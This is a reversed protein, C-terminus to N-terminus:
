AYAGRVSLVVAASVVSVMGVSFVVALLLKLATACGDLFSALKKLGFLEAALSSLLCVLLWVAAKLCLPLFIALSALLGFAGVGSKVLSISSSIATFADSFAGGVIPIASSAIMKAVKGAAADSGASVLTQISLIGTYITVALILMWKLGKYITDTLRKLNFSTVSSVASLALFIRLFPIFLNVALASVGNAVALTLAGYTSGTIASGASVLLGVYVPVAALLFVGVAQVVAAAQGILDAMPPFLVAAASLASCLSVTYALEDPALEQVIRCLLTVAILLLLVRLPETWQERVPEALLAFFRQVAGTASGGPTVGSDSLLFRAEEPLAELLQEAGSQEYLQVEMEEARVPQAFLFAFVILFCFCRVYKM